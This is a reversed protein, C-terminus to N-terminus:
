VFEILDSAYPFGEPHPKFEAEGKPPDGRLAIISNINADKLQVLIDNIEDKSHGVCTLHAMTEINLENQIRRVLDLTKQRTAGGAGYTVSVYDPNANSIDALTSYLTVWGKSTKPPFFEFSLTPISKEFKEFFRM